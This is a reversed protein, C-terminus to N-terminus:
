TVIGVALGNESPVDEVVLSVARGGVYVVTLRHQACYEREAVGDHLRQWGVPVGGIPGVLMAQAGCVDCAYHREFRESMKGGM